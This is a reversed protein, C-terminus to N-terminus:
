AGADNAGTASGPSVVSAMNSTEKGLLEQTARYAREKLPDLHERMARRGAELDRREIADLIRDHSRVFETDDARYSSPMGLPYPIRFVTIPELLDMLVRNKTSRVVLQHFRIHEKAREENTEAHLPDRRRNLSERMEAIEAATAKEVAQEIVVRELGRRVIYLEWPTYDGRRLSIELAEALRERGTDTVFTGVGHRIEVLGKTTLARMADRVVARSVELQTAMEVETPLSDGPRYEGELILDEL